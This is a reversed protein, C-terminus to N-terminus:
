RYSKQRTDAALMIVVRRKDDIEYFIRFGGIRYRWTEPKYGALKKINRGFYPQRRLQPYVDELLKAVIKEQRPGLNSRLDSQFQETEFIRFENL